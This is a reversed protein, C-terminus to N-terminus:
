EQKLIDEFKISYGLGLSIDNMNRGIHIVDALLRGWKEVRQKTLEILVDENLLESELWKQSRLGGTEDLEAAAIRALRVPFDFDREQMTVQITDGDKVRVVKATFNEIMQKHPSDFYYFQMQNNTLEPFRKFDHQKVM